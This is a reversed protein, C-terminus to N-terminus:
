VVRGTEGKMGRSWNHYFAAAASAGVLLVICACAAVAISRKAGKVANKNYAVVKKSEKRNMMENGKSNNAQVKIELFAFDMSEKVIDPLEVDNNFVDIDKM